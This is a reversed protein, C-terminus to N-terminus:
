MNFQQNAYLNPRADDDATVTSSDLRQASGELDLEDFQISKLSSNGELPKAHMHSNAKPQLSRWPVGIDV